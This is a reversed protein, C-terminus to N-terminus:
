SDNPTMLCLEGSVLKALLKNHLAASKREVLSPAEARRLKPLGDALAEPPLGPKLCVLAPRLRGELVVDGFNPDSRETGLMGAAIDPGHLVVYGLSVLWVLAADEVISETFAGTM